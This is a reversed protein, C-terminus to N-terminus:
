INDPVVPLFVVTAPVLLHIWATVETALNIAFVTEMQFPLIEPVVPININAAVYMVLEKVQIVLSFLITAPVLMGEAFSKLIISLANLCINDAATQQKKNM